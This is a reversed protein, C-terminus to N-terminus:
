GDAGDDVLVDQRLRDDESVLPGAVALQILVVRSMSVAAVGLPDVDFAVNVRVGDLAEGAVELPADGTGVM